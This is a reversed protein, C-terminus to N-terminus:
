YAVKKRNVGIYVAFDKLCMQYELFVQKTKELDFTQALCSASYERSRHVLFM